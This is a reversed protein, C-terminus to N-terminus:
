VEEQRHCIRLSRSTEIVAKMYLYVGASWGMMPPMESALREQSVLVSGDVVNYKEWLYGTTEYNSEVLAVYKKAIRLADEDFGYRLLGEVAIAHLPAWGNPYGWQFAFPTDWKECATLGFSTELRPLQRRLSAAQEQTAMGVMLPYFSACSFIQSKENKVFNYDFFVGDKLMVRNMTEQRDAAKKRWNESDGVQTYETLDAITNELMYLLANLCVPVYQEIMFGFRPSIDWGSEYAGIYQVSLSKDDIDEPRRGIRKIYDQYIKEQIARERDGAYQNLGCSTMRKKMWFAHERILYKVARKMWNADKTVAAVDAVMRSLFPPQSNKLYYTRNGNPVFGYRDLLFFLNEVNNVAQQIRGSLILGRNIFSTDWYYMEQFRNGICPVTYPHPLGILTGDDKCGNHICHDWERKITEVLNM